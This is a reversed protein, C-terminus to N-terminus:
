KPAVGTASRGSESTTPTVGAVRCIMIARHLESASWNRLIERLVDTRGKGSGSCYGDLVKVEDDPIEIRIEPM